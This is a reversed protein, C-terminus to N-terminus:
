ATRAFFAYIDNFASNRVTQMEYGTDVLFFDKATSFREFYKSGM